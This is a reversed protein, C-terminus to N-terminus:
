TIPVPDLGRERLGRIIAPLAEVTASRDGGGDHLLIIAGPRVATLVRRVLARATPRMWDHSDVAWLITRMGRKE